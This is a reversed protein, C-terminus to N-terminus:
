KAETRRAFEATTGYFLACVSGCEEWQMILEQECVETRERDLNSGMGMHHTKNPTNHSM